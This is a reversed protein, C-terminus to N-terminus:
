RTTEVPGGPPDVQAEYRALRTEVEVQALRMSLQPSCGYNKFIKLNWYVLAKHGAEPQKAISPSMPFCFGVM